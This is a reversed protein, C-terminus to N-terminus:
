ILGPINRLTKNESYFEETADKTKSKNHCKRLFNFVLLIMVDFLIIRLHIGLLVSKFERLM